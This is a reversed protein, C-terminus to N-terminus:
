FPVDGDGLIEEFDDLNGSNVSNAFQEQPRQAVTDATVATKEKYIHKCEPFQSANIYHVRENTKGNYEEHVVKVRIVRNVLDGCLEYVNEYEKGNELGVAKALAMIQSFGYGQVQLDAQTPEKRKWLTHFVIRNHCKQEVDNRIVLTMNLGIAGKQTTHEEIKQIIVEYEGVPILSYDQVDEYNTSFGM